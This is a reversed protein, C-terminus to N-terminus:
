SNRTESTLPLTHSYVLFTPKILPLPPPCVLPASGFIRAFTTIHILKNQMCILHPPVVPASGFIRAFTAIWIAAFAGLNLIFRLNKFMLNTIRVQVAGVYASNSSVEKM